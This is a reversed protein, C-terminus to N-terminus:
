QAPARAPPSPKAPAQTGPAPPQEPGDRTVGTPASRGTETDAVQPNQAGGFAFILVGIFLVLGLFWALASGAGAGRSDAFNPSDISDYLPDRRIPDRPDRFDSM